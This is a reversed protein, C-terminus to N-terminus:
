APPRRTANADTPEGPRTDRITSRYGSAEGEAHVLTLVNRIGQEFIEDALQRDAPCHCRRVAFDGIVALVGDTFVRETADASRGIEDLLAASPCRHGPDDRHRVSLYERVIHEVGARGPPLV